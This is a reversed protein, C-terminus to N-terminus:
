SAAMSTRSRAPLCASGAREMRIQCFAVELTRDESTVSFQRKPETHEPFEQELRSLAAAADPGSFPVDYLSDRRSVALQNQANFALLLVQVNSSPLTAMAFSSLSCSRNQETLRLRRSTLPITKGEASPDAMAYKVASIKTQRKLLCRM